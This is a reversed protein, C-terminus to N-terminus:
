GLSASTVPFIAVMHPPRWAGRDSIDFYIYRVDDRNAARRIPSFLSADFKARLKLRRGDDWKFAAKGGPAM